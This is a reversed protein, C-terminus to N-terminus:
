YICTVTFATDCRPAHKNTKKLLIEPTVSIEMRLDSGRCFCAGSEGVWLILGIFSVTYKCM